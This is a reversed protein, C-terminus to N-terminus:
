AARLEGAPTRRLYSIAERILPGELVLTGVATVLLYAALEALAVELSREIDFAARPILVAAAAPLTPAIARLMYSAVEFGPFLRTLYYWRASLTVAAMVGMGAAFGELGYAFLLPAPAALFASLAAVSVVALPRTNGVARYFAGWNFGIHNVAATLGFVQLLILAEEWQEGIGFEILDAAFLSLGVGFPVGWMLTLRNSKTFAEMLLDRRDRVRCIAPYLAQTIVTDVRDAYASLTGALGIAGAGALGLAVEGFLVSLQAILLGAAVAILLPWSFAVYERMTVQEYRLALRYPSAMLAVLAGAWAGALIGVVLSWYGLGAIALPITTLFGVIPDVSILLRQRLFDMRRYFIWTPSQLALGPLLLALALGPLLLEDQGYLLALAPALLLMLAMFILASLVDLTFAKQFAHEQDPESQQVYKDSVAALKLSGVFLFAFYVISWVGFESATLFGAVILSKLLNLTGIGVLFVSNIITGRAARRRRGGSLPESEFGSSSPALGSETNGAKM